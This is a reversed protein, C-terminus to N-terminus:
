YVAIIFIKWMSWPTQQQADSPYSHYKCRSVISICWVGARHTGNFTTTLCHFQISREQSISRQPIFFYSVFVCVFACACPRGDTMATSLWAVMKRQLHPLVCLIISQPLLSRRATFWQGQLQCIGITIIKDKGSGCDKWKTNNSVKYRGHSM